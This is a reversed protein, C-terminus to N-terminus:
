KYHKKETNKEKKTGGKVGKEDWLFVCICVTKKKKKLLRPMFSIYWFPMEQNKNILSFVHSQNKYYKKKLVKKPSYKGQINKDKQQLFM